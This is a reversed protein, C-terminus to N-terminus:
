GPEIERAEACHRVAFEVGVVLGDCGCCSIEAWRAGIACLLDRPKPLLKRDRHDGRDLARRVAASEVDGQACGDSEDRVYRLYLEFALLTLLTSVSGLVLKGLWRQFPSM